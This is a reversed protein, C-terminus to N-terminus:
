PWVVRYFRQLHNTAAEDTFQYEGLSIQTATGLLTWQGSSLAANNSAYVSFSVNPNNTFSFQFAGNGLLVPATLVPPTAISYVHVDPAFSSATNGSYVNNLLTQYTSASFVAGGM